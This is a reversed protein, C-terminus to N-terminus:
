RTSLVVCLLSTFYVQEKDALLIDTTVHPSELFELLKV